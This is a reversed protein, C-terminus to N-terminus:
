QGEMYNVCQQETFAERVKGAHKTYDMQPQSGGRSWLKLFASIQSLENTSRLFRSYYRDYNNFMCVVM